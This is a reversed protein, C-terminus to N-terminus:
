LYLNMKWKQPLISYLVLQSWLFDLLGKNPKDIQVCLTYSLSSHRVVVLTMRHLYERPSNLAPRLIHLQVHFLKDQPFLMHNELLPIYAPFM